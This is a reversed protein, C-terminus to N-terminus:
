SKGFHGQCVSDVGDFTLTMTVLFVSPFVICKATSIESGLRLESKLHM